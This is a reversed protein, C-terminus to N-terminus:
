RRISVRYRGDEVIVRPVRHNNEFADYGVKLNKWFKYWRNKRYKALAPKSMRFPFIHVDVSLQGNLLAKEVLMYIDDINRDGMAYCGVSACKGHVMLYSGTYGHYRDYSNPFGLNFSLHFNSKPNLASYNVRYFGEPSKKDGVRQKPGLGGSYKCISYIKLLKYSRMKKAKIWVELESSKKFIRIYIKDGVRAGVRQLAVKLPEKKAKLWLSKQALSVKSERKERRSKSRQKKVDAVEISGEITYEESSEKASNDTENKDKSTASINRERVRAVSESRNLEDFLSSINKDRQLISSISISLKRKTQNNEADAKETDIKEQEKVKTYSKKFYGSITSKEDASLEKKSASQQVKVPLASEQM